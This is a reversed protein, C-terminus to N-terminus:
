TYTDEDSFGVDNISLQRYVDTSIIHYKKSPKIEENNKYWKVEANTRSIQCELLVHHKHMGIKVRLPRVIQVPLEKVVLTASSSTQEATFTIAATDQPRVCRLLLVYVRGKQKIKINHGAKIKTKNKYWHGEVEDHTIECVFAAQETEMVEVDLLSRVIRIDRAHVTLNACTRDGGADCVYQGQDDMACRRILLYRRCGQSHMGFRRGAKLEVSG